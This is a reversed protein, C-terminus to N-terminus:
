YTSADDDNKLVSITSYQKATQITQMDGFIKKSKVEFMTSGSKIGRLLYQALFEKTTDSDDHYPETGILVTIFYEKLSTSNLLPQFLDIFSYLNKKLIGFFRIYEPIM